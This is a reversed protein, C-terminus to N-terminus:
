KPVEVRETQPKGASNTSRSGPQFKRQRVNQLVNTPLLKTETYLTQWKLKSYYWWNARTIRSIYICGNTEGAYFFHQMAVTQSEDFRHEFTSASVRKPGKAVCGALLFLSVPLLLRMMNSAEYLIPNYGSTFFTLRKLRIARRGNTWYELAHLGQRRNSREPAILLM